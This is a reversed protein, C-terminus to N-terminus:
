SRGSFINRKVFGMGFSFIMAVTCVLLAVVVDVVSHQKLFVTSVASLFAGVGALVIWVTKQIGMHLVAMFFGFAGIVHESPCVNTNTDMRYLIQVVETMCNVRPYTEPRLNQCTPYLIFILTSISMAIILYRSYMSFVPQNKFYLFIHIGIICPHWLFYPIVFWEVFPLMNDLPCFVPHCASVPNGSELLFYRLFFIPWFLFYWTNGQNQPCNLHEM